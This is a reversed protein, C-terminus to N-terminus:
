PFHMVRFSEEIEDDDLCSIYLCRSVLDPNVTLHQYSRAANVFYLLKKIISASTKLRDFNVLQALPVSAKHKSIGFIDEADSGYEDNISFMSDRTNDNLNEVIFAPKQANFTLDSLYLGIFPVCGKSVDAKDMEYRLNKFNKLPSAIKELSEFLAVNEEAVNDWTTKLRQVTASALALTIQMFTSYNQLDLTQAAIHIFKTITLAREELDRTLLIESTVWSTMLNFRSIILEVGRVNRTSLFSLWDQVPAVNQKWQLDMLEKWDVEALADRDILTFQAALDFARYKLIFPLHISLSVISSARDASITSHSRSFVSVAQSSVDSNDERDLLSPELSTIRQSLSEVFWADRERGKWSYVSTAYVNDKSPDADSDAFDRISKESGISPPPPPVMSPKRLYTGELKMLALTVPDISIDPVDDPIDALKSLEVALDESIGPIGIVLPATAAYRDDLMKLNGTVSAPSYSTVNFSGAMSSFSSSSAWKFKRLSNNRLNAHGLQHRLGPLSASSEIPIGSSSSTTTTTTTNSDSPALTQFQMLVNHNLSSGAASSSKSSRVDDSGYDLRAQLFLFDNKNASIDTEAKQPTFISSNAESRGSDILSGHLSEVAAIDNKTTQTTRSPSNGVASKLDYDLKLQHIFLNSGERETSELLQKYNDVVSAALIDIRVGLELSRDESSNENRLIDHTVAFNPSLQPIDSTHLSQNHNRGFFKKTWSKFRSQKAVIPDSASNTNSYSSSINDFEVHNQLGPSAPIISDVIAQDDTPIDIDAKGRILAGWPNELNANNGRDNVSENSGQSSQPSISSASNNPLHLDAQSSFQGTQPIIPSSSNLHTAPSQPNSIRSKRNKRAPQEINSKGTIEISQSGVTGGPHIVVNLCGISSQLLISDAYILSPFVWYLSSARIWIRKLEGIMRCDATSAKVKDSSSLRNIGDVFAARLKFSPVFDDAFYNLVWYRLVVFTRMRVIRGINDSRDLAWQYRALILRMVDLEHAFQRFGLFFDSILNYDITDPPTILLILRATTIGVIEGHMGYRIPIAAAAADKDWITSLHSAVSSFISSSSKFKKSTLDPTPFAWNYPSSPSTPTPSLGSINATVRVHRTSRPSKPSKGLKQKTRIIPTRPSEDSITVVKEALSKEAAFPTSPPFEIHVSQGPVNSFRDQQVHFSTHNVSEAPQHCSSTEEGHARTSQTPPISPSSREHKEM